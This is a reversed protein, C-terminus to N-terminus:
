EFKAEIIKNLESGAERGTELKEKESATTPLFTLM